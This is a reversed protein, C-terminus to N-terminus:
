QAELPHSSLRQGAQGYDSCVHYLSVLISSPKPSWNSKIYCVCVCVCVQLICGALVRDCCLHVRLIISLQVNICIIYIRLLKFGISIVVM